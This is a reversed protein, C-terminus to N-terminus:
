LRGGDSPVPDYATRETPHDFLYNVRAKTDADTLVEDSQVPISGDRILEGDLDEDDEVIPEDEEPEPDVPEDEEPAPEAGIDEDEM